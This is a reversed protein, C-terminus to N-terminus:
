SSGGEPRHADNPESAQPAIGTSAVELLRPREEPRLPTRRPFRLVPAGGPEPPRRLRAGDGQGRGRRNSPFPAGAVGARHTACFTQVHVLGGTM